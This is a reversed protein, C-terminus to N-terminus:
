NIDSARSENMMRLQDDLRNGRDEEEPLAVTPRPAPEISSRRPGAVQSRKYEQQTARQLLYNYAFTAMFYTEPHVHWLRTEYFYFSVQDLYYSNNNETFTLFLYAIWMGLFM